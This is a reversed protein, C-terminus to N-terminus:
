RALERKALYIAGWEAETELLEVELLPYAGKVGNSIAKHLIPTNILLGGGYVLPYTKDGMDLEKVLTVVIDILHDIARDIIGQSVKDGEKGAEIVIAALKAIESKNSSYVYTLIEEFEKFKLEKVLKENLSTAPGSHDYAKLAASIAEKALWYGSGEDGVRHGFGGVRWQKENENIAFGISGTGSILIIGAEGKTASALAIASDNVVKIPCDCGAERILDEIIKVSEDTDAGAVGACLCLCQGMEKGKNSNFDDFLGKFNSKVTELSNSEINTSEGLGQYIVRGSLDTVLLRTHTGGGDIGMIYDMKGKTEWTKNSM